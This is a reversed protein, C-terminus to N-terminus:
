EPRFSQYRLVHLTRESVLAAVHENTPIKMGGLGALVCVCVDAFSYVIEGGFDLWFRAKLAGKKM